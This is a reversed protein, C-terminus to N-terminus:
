QTEKYADTPLVFDNAKLKALWDEYFKAAKGSQGLDFKASALRISKNFIQKAHGCHPCTDMVVKHWWVKIRHYYRDPPRTENAYYWMSEERLLIYEIFTTDSHWEGCTGIEEIAPRIILSDCMLSDRTYDSNQGWGARICLLTLLLIMWTKM